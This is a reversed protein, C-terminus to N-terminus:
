ADTCGGYYSVISVEKNNVNTKIESLSSSILDQIKFKTKGIDELIVIDGDTGKHFYVDNKSNISYYLILKRFDQFEGINLYLCSEKGSFEEDSLMIIKIEERFEKNIYNGNSKYSAIMDEAITKQEGNINVTEYLIGNDGGLFAENNGKERAKAAWFSALLFLAMITIVVLLVPVFTMVDSFQGKRKMM